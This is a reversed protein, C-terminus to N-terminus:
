ATKGGLEELHKHYKYFTELDSCELISPLKKLPVKSRKLAKMSLEYFEVFNDTARVFRELTRKLNM